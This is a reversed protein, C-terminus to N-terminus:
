VDRWACYAIIPALVLAAIDIVALPAHMRNIWLGWSLSLVALCFAIGEIALVRTRM